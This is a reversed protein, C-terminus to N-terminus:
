VIPHQADYAAIFDALALLRDGDRRWWSGFDPAAKADNLVKLAERIRHEWSWQEASVFRDHYNGNGGDHQTDRRLRWTRAMSMVQNTERLEIWVRAAKTVTAEIPKSVARRNGYSTPIVLLQDGVAIPGLEPKPM